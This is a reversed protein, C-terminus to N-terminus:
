PARLLDLIAFYAPKPQGDQDFLLPADPHGTHEPIWSDADSIGWTVFVNCNPAAMCAAFARQYTEAQESMKQAPTQSSYQTRVDIETIHAQLGLEALRGMNAALDQPTPPGDLWIHMQLGVGDIPIGMKLMGKVLAYVADSKQSLGESEFENYILLADPDAERAWQFAMPIYEPGIARLWLTDRLTGDQNLAENIVHWAYVQGRYHGVVTKIHTCLIEIWEERSHQGEILWAPQQRDWVLTHGYVKMGNARAFAVLRDGGSFDYRQPEPHIFEWKMHNSPILMNFERSLMEARGPLDLQGANLAAGVYMSHRDALSRLTVGPVEGALTPTPTGFAPPSDQFPPIPAPDCSPFGPTPPPPTPPFV